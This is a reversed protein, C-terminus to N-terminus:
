EVIQMYKMELTKHIEMQRYDLLTSHLTVVEQLLLKGILQGPKQLDELAQVVAQEVLLM